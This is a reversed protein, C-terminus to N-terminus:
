ETGYAAFADGGHQIIWPVLALTEVNNILTPADWLGREAPYPPRLHPMGRQGEVSAILATEEGCVFAGAGEVVELDFGFESGLIGKGLMGRDRMIALAERIRKVALPYEHRIYFKGETAGVARAAIIMGEIVRYPYSELIMRDMFAGPDGEDGNCIIFKRDAKAGAVLKWKRGTPFGAGGRGRLGSREVQEIIAAPAMGEVLVKHMAKFGGYSLYEDIDLPDLHGCYETALREQGALFTCIPEEVLARQKVGSHGDGTLLHNVAHDVRDAMRRFVGRPRFHRRVIAEAQGATVKTYIATATGEGLVVEVLPTQHCMGVCGVPKVAADAGIAAVARELAARVDQSGGAVCCSGVGIRIEGGKSPGKTAGDSKKGDQRQSLTFTADRLLEGVEAAPVHGLTIVDVQVVPALTCCGLCGVREVTYNGEADTDEDGTLKLERKLADHVLESDKVHCATGHCVRIIHKGAPKHRFQTFFTSVGTIASPHVQTIEAIRELAQAPLYHYHKQIAQLLPILHRPERGVTAVIRDVVSLDLQEVVQEM